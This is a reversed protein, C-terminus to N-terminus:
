PAVAKDLRNVHILDAQERRLAIVAGRIRYATPDGSPSELEAEVVTGPIIGLDLMRRRELGRCSASIGIVTARQGLKLGSLREFPGEMKQEGPLPVVSLNAAVVPALVHEEADAELHIRTPSTDLVRVQMGPHLGEAVLQAYVAEPEDEVHVIAALEGVPLDTLPRGQPPPMDGTATPIPDGHPDFRPDGMQAALADAEEPSMTHERYEAEHHWEAPHLGTRDSLYREWLRHTRIVRLAWSRGDPTLRYGGGASTVLQLQELRTLLDATRNGSIRLAGCLSHLTCPIQRYECDHLHKLADEVLVRDTPRFGRLWRWFFGRLPWFLGAVFVGIIGAILLALVPNTM